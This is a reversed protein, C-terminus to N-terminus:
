SDIGIAESTYINVEGAHVYVRKMRGGRQLMWWEWFKSAREHDQQSETPHMCVSSPSYTVLHSM